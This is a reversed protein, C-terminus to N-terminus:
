KREKQAAIALEVEQPLTLGVGGALLGLIRKIEEREETFFDVQKQLTLLRETATRLIHGEDFAIAVLQPAEPFVAAIFALVEEDLAYNKRM